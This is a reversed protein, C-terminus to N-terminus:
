INVNKIIELIKYWYFFSEPSSKKLKNLKTNLQDEIKWEFMNVTNSYKELRSKNHKILMVLYAVRSAWIIAKQLHFNESFIYGVIKNIGEQLEDFSGIGDRGRTVICLCTQYIDELIDDATLNDLGRYFLETTAFRWFTQRVIMIDSISEFICGLDYLQKIIELSRSEGGKKYPIGSTNPAFATLKDGAIDELSPTKVLLPEGESPIFISQLPVEIIREYQVKEFLIDLLIFEEDKITKYLPQYYFKYHAKEIRSTVSRSSIEKRTFGQMFCIEDLLQELNEPKWEMLIDADLSLRKSSNLLLMLSTGGKFVFHLKQKVLGELLLLVRIVKEILIRDVNHNDASVKKIWDTNLNNIKIM